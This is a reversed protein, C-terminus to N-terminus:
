IRAEEYGRKLAIAHSYGMKRYVIGMLKKIDFIGLKAMAGLMAIEPTSGCSRAIKDANIAIMGNEPLKKSNILAKCDYKGRGGRCVIMLKKKAGSLKLRFGGDIEEFEEINGTKLAEKLLNGIEKEGIFEIEYSRVVEM